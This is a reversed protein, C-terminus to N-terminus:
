VPVLYPLTIEAPNENYQTIQKTENKSYSVMKKRKMLYKRCDVGAFISECTCFPLIKM